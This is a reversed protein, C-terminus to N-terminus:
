SKSSFYRPSVPTTWTSVTSCHLVPQSMIFLEQM